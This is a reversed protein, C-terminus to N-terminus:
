KKQTNNNSQNQNVINNKIKELSTCVEQIEIRDKPKQQLMKFLLNQLAFISEESIVGDYKSLMCERPCYPKKQIDQELTKLKTSCDQIEQGLTTLKASFNDSYYFPTGYLVYDFLIGLSWVDAKTSIVPKINKQESNLNNSQSLQNLINESFTNKGFRINVKQLTHVIILEVSFINKSKTNSLM